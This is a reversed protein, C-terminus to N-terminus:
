RSRLRQVKFVTPAQGGWRMKTVWSPELIIGEVHYGIALLDSRAPDHHEAVGWQDHFRGRFTEYGEPRYGGITSKFPIVFGIRYRTM